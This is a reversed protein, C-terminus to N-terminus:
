FTRQPDAIIREDGRVRPGLAVPQPGQIGAQAPIFPCPRAVCMEVFRRDIGMFTLCDDSWKIDVGLDLKRFSKPRGIKRRLGEIELVAFIRLHVL